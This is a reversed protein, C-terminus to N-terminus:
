ALDLQTGLWGIAENLLKQPVAAYNKDAVSENAHRLFLQYVSAYKGDPSDRFMTAGTKRLGKLPKPDFEPHKKAIRLKLDHWQSQINDYKTFKGAKEEDDGRLRAVLLPNGDNNTLALKGKPAKFKKLLEFTRSWLPFKVTPVRDSKDATKGRLDTIIGTKWDVASQELEAIDIQTFGCNAMMLVWLEFPTDKVFSLVFHIDEKSWPVIDLDPVQIALQKNKFNRPLQDLVGIEYLWTVWSKFTGQFRKGHSPSFEGSTIKGIIHDHWALYTQGTIETVSKSPGFWDLFRTIENRLNEWHGASKGAVVAVKKHALWDNAQEQCTMGKAAKESAQERLLAVEDVALKSMVTKELANSHPLGLEKIAEIIGLVHEQQDPESRKAHHNVLGNLRDILPNEADVVPIELNALKRTWWLNAAKLTGAKTDGTVLEPFQDRLQKPSVRYQKYDYSKVWRGGSWKMLEQVTAM